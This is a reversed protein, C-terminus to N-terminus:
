IKGDAAALLTDRLSMEGSPPGGGMPSGKVSSSAVKAKQVSAVSAAEKRQAVIKAIEPSMQIARDYAEQITMSRGRRGAVELLDAMTESIEPEDVFENRAAFEEVTQAARAQIQERQQAQTQQQQAIFQQYPALREQLLRDIEQQQTIQPNAQGSLLGDLTQVDVGYVNILRAIVDAKQIPTGLRLAATTQMLNQIAVIPDPAGEAAMVARYPDIAKQVREAFQRGEANQQIAIASERERRVVEEQVDPPLSAWREKAGAKWSVPPKFTSKVPKSDEEPEKKEEAKAPEPADDPEAESQVAEAKEPQEEKPAEREVVEPKEPTEDVVKEETSEMADELTARIDKDDDTEM